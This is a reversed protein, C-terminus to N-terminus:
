KRKRKLLWKFLLHFVNAIAAEEIKKIMSETLRKHEEKTLLKGHAISSIPLVTAIEGRSHDYVVPIDKSDLELVHVSRTNSLKKIKFSKGSQIQKVLLKLDNSNLDAGFREKMRDKSHIRQSIHKPPKKM